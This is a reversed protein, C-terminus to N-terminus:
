EQYKEQIWRSFGEMDPHMALTDIGAHRLFARAEPLLELKLRVQRVHGRYIADLPRADLGHITFFARQARIRQTLRPPKLPIPRRFPWNNVQFFGSYYDPLANVTAITKDESNNRALESIKFPNIIWIAPAVPDNGEIPRAAFYLAVGLVETWDLLRTPTGHHQLKALRDWSTDETFEWRFSDQFDDFIAQELKRSIRQNPRFLSPYLRHRYHRVGRFWALSKSCLLEERATNIADFFHNLM